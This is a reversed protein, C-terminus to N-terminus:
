EARICQIYQLIPGCMCIYTHIYTHIYAWIYTHIGMHLGQMAVVIRTYVVESTM